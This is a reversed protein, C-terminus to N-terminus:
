LRETIMEIQPLILSLNRLSKRELIQIQILTFLQVNGCDKVTLNALTGFNESYDAVLM